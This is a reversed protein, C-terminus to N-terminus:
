LSFVEQCRNGRLEEVGIMDRNASHGHLELDQLLERLLSSEEM